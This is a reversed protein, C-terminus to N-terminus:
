MVISDWATGIDPVVGGNIQNVFKQVFESFIKGSMFGGNQYNNKVRLNNIIHNKLENLGDIFKPKL